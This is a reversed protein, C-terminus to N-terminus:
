DNDIIFKVEFIKVVQRFRKAGNYTINKSKCYKPITKLNLYAGIQEIFQVLETNSYKGEQIEKFILYRTDM